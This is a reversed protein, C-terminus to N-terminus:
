NYKYVIYIYIYIEAHTHKYIRIDDGNGDRNPPKQNRDSTAITECPNWKGHAGPFTTIEHTLLAKFLPNIITLLPQYDPQHNPVHIKNSEM